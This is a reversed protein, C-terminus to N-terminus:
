FIICNRCNCPTENHETDSKNLIHKIKESISQFYVDLIENKVIENQTETHIVDNFINLIRELISSRTIPDIEFNFQLYVDYDTLLNNINRKMNLNTKVKMKWAVSFDSKDIDKLNNILVLLMDLYNEPASEAFLEDNNYIQLNFCSISTGSYDFRELFRNNNMGAELATFKVQEFNNETDNTNFLLVEGSNKINLMKEGELHKNLSKTITIDSPNMEIFHLNFSYQGEPLLDIRAIKINMKSTMEPYANQKQNLMKLKVELVNVNEHARYENIQERSRLVMYHAKLLIECIKNIFKGTEISLKKLDDNESLERLLTHMKNNEGTSTYTSGSTPRVMGQFQRDSEMFWVDKSFNQEPLHGKSRFLKEFTEKMLIFKRDTSLDAYIDTSYHSKGVEEKIM